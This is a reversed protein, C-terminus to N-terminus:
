QISKVWKLELLNRKNASVPYIALMIIQFIMIGCFTELNSPLNVKSMSLLHLHRYIYKVITITRFM